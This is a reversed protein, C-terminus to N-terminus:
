KRMERNGSFIQRGTEMTTLIKGSLRIAIKTYKAMGIIANSKEGTSGVSRLNAPNRPMTKNRLMGIRRGTVALTICVFPRVMPNRKEVKYKKHTTKPISVPPINQNAPAIIKPIKVMNDESKAPCTIINNLKGM